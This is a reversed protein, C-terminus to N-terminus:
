AIATKLTLVPTLDSKDVTADSNIVVNMEKVEEGTIVDDNGYDPQGYCRHYLWIRLQHCAYVFVHLLPTFCFVLVGCIYLAEGPKDWELGPYIFNKGMINTGGCAFYAATFGSYIIACSLPFVMHYIRIPTATIFLDIITYISQVAHTHFNVGTLVWHEDVSHVFGWYLGSIIFPSCTSMNYIVWALQYTLPMKLFLQDDSTVKRRKIYYEIALSTQNICNVTVLTFAWHTLYIFWKPGNESNYTEDPYTRMSPILGIWDIGCMVIWILFWTAWLARYIIFVIHPIPWQSTAYLAPKPHHLGWNECKFEDYFWSRLGNLM